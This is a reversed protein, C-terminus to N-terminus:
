PNGLKMENKWESLTKRKRMPGFLSLPTVEARVGGGGGSRGGGAAFWPAVRASIAAVSGVPQRALSRRVLWRAVVEELRPTPPLGLRWRLRRWGRRWQRERTERRSLNEGGGDRRWWPRAQRWHQRSGIPKGRRGKEEEHIGAKTLKGAVGGNEANFKNILAEVRRNLKDWNLSPEKRLGTPVNQRAQLWQRKRSGTISSGEKKQSIHRGELKPCTTTHHFHFCFTPHM